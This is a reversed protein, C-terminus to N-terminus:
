HVGNWKMIKQDSLMLWVERSPVNAQLLPLGSLAKIQEDTFTYRIAKDSREIGSLAKFARRGAILYPVLSSHETRTADQGANDVLEEM